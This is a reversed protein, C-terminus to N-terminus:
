PQDQRRLIAAIDEASVGHFHFDLGGDPESEAMTLHRALQAAPEGSQNPM